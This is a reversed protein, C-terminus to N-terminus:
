AVVRRSSAIWRKRQRELLFGGALLLIGLGIFATAAGLKHWLYEFYRSVLWVAFLLLGFNIDGTRGHQVGGHVLVVIVALFV